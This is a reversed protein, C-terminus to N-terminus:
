GNPHNFRDATLMLALESMRRDEEDDAILTVLATAATIGMGHLRYQELFM